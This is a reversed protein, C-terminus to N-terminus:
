ANYFFLCNMSAIALCNTQPHWSSLLVKKNFDFDNNLTEFHGDPINKMITKKKFNLEFQLNKQGQIDAVHFHNNYLGTVFHSSCPSTSVKFKDYVYDRDFLDCLRSKLSEYLNTTSYPKDLNRVDWIKVSLYDRAVLFKGNPTFKVNSINKLFPTFFNNKTEVPKSKKASKNFSKSVRLDCLSLIGDSTSFTFSFDNTPHFDCCTILKQMEDPKKCGLEFLKLVKEPKELNWLYIGFDDSTIFNENNPVSSITNISFSHLNPFTRKLSPTYGKDIQTLKPMSLTERTIQNKNEFPISKKVKKEGLKWLKVTKDNTSLLFMNNGERKLWEISNIHENIDQSKLVDFDHLHSQLESLYSYDLFGKKSKKLPNKEFIILRGANDGLAIFNGKQSFAMASIIDEKQVREVISRDGFVQTFKWDMKPINM